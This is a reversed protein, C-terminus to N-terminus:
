EYRRVSSSIFRFLFLFMPFGVFFLFLPSFWIHLMVDTLETMGITVNEFTAMQTQHPAVNQTPEITIYIPAPTPVPTIEIVPAVVPAPSPAFAFSLAIGVVIATIFFSLPISLIKM